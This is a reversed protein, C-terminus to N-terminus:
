WRQVLPGRRVVAAVYLPTEEYERGSSNVIGKRGLVLTGKVFCGKVKAVHTHTITSIKMAFSYITARCALCM